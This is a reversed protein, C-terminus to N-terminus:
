NNSATKADYDVHENVEERDELAKSSVGDKDVVTKDWNHYNGKVECCCTSKGMDILKYSM